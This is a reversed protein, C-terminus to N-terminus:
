RPTNIPDSEPVDDTSVCGNHGDSQANTSNNRCQRKPPPDLTVRESPEGRREESRRDNPITPDRPKFTPHQDGGIEREDAPNPLSFAM